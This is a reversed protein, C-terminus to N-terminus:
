SCIPTQGMLLVAIWLEQGLTSWIRKGRCVFQRMMRSSHVWHVNSTVLHLGLCDKQEGGGIRQGLLLPGLGKLLETLNPTINHWHM